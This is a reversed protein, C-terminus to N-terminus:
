LICCIKNGQNVQIELKSIKRDLVSALILGIIALSVAVAMGIILSMRVRGIIKVPPQTQAKSQRSNSESGPAPPRHRTGESSCLYIISLFVFSPFNNSTGISIKGDIHISTVDGDGYPFAHILCTM